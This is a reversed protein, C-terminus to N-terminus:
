VTPRPYHEAMKIFSLENQIIGCQACQVLIKEGRYPLHFPDREENTLIKEVEGTAPNLRVATPVQEIINFRMRNAKCHPCLYPKGPM